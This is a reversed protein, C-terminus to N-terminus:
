TKQSVSPRTVCPMILHIGYPVGLSHCMALAMHHVQFLHSVNLWTNCSTIFLFFFIFFILFFFITIVLPWSPFHPYAEGVQDMRTISIWFLFHLFFISFLSFSSHSFSSFSFFLFHFSIFLSSSPVFLILFQPHILFSFSFFLFSFSFSFSPLPFLPSLSSDSLSLSLFPLSFCFPLNEKCESPRIEVTRSYFDIWADRTVHPYWFRPTEDFETLYPIKEVRIIYSGSNLKEM